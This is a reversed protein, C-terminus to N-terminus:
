SIQMLDEATTYPGHATRYEVIARAKAPGIGYLASAIEHASATNINVSGAYSTPSSILSILALLTVLGFTRFM